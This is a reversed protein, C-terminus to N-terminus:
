GNAESLEDKVEKKRKVYQYNSSDELTEETITVECDYLIGDMVDSKISYIASDVVSSLGRIGAGTSMAKDVIIDIAQNTCNLVVNDEKFFAEKWLVLNSIKSTTLVQKMTVKDISNMQVLVSIRGLLERLVGAQKILFDRTIKVDKNSDSSGFGIQKKDKLSDILEQFSGSMIFTIKTTDIIIDETKGDLSIPYEGGEIIGLLEEQVDTTRVSKDSDGKGLKDFEDIFIIGRKTKEIDKGSKIYLDRIMSTVDRGKYGSCTFDVANVKVMPVDLIKALSRSIETKGVGTPGVLLVNNKLGEYTSYKQNSLVATVVAEIQSDQGKVREKIFDIIRKRPIERSSNASEDMVKEVKKKSFLQKFDEVRFNENTNKSFSYFSAMAISDKVACTSHFSRECVENLYGDMFEIFSSYLQGPGKELDVNTKGRLVEVNVPFGYYIKEPENLFDRFKEVNTFAFNTINDVFKGDDCLTGITYGIPQFEFVSEGKRLVVKFKIAGWLSLSGM